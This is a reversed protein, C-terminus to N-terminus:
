WNLQWDQSWAGKPTMAELGIVQLLQSSATYDFRPVVVGNLTVNGPKEAVGMVTVNSLPNANVYSGIGSAYLCGQAVTMVISLTANPEVSEGDDLYLSGTAAGNADLGVLLAWPHTQADRVTLADQLPQMPLISGGRVFVPIHGLPAPISVNAGSLAVTDSIASQNYWDYYITGTSAGPFVGSVSDAGPELVPTVLLSPGLMFQRDASALQPEGPFEWALARMFTSGTLHAENLLTYMYPLLSYRINMAAKTAEAVSAWRYPERALAYITNHNRYFPFFASLQMWRNCLEEDTNGNFGCTDVGFMPIGFLSMSLAQPISFFMYRWQSYNDGGWHGAVTGAGAFTSGSCSTLAIDLILTAKQRTSVALLSHDSERFRRRLDM